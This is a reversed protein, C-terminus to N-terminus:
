FIFFPLGNFCSATFNAEAAALDFAFIEEDIALPHQDLPHVPMLVVRIQPLHRGTIQHDLVDHQHLLVVDIGAARGM